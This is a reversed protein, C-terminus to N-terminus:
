QFLRGEDSYELIFDRLDSKDYRLEPLKGSNMPIFLYPFKDRLPNNIYPITTMLPRSHALVKWLAPNVAPYPVEYFIGPLYVFEADSIKPDDGEEELGKVRPYDSITPEVFEEIPYSPTGRNSNHHYIGFKIKYEDKDTIEDDTRPLFFVPSRGTYEKVIRELKPNILTTTFVRVKKSLNTFLLRYVVRKQGGQMLIDNNDFFWIEEYRNLQEFALIRSDSFLIALNPEKEYKRINHYYRDYKKSSPVM